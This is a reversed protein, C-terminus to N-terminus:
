KKKKGEGFAMDVEIKKEVHKIVSPKKGEDVIEKINKEFKEECPDCKSKSCKEAM